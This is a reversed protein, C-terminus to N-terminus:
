IIIHQSQVSITVIEGIVIIVCLIINFKCWPTLSEFGKTRLLHIIIGLSILMCILSFVFFVIALPITIILVFLAMAIIGLIISLILAISASTCTLTEFVKGM